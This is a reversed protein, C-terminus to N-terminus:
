GSTQVLLKERFPARSQFDTKVKLKPYKKEFLVVSQDIKEAARRCGTALLPDDGDPRGGHRQRGRMRGGRGAGAHGGVGYGSRM